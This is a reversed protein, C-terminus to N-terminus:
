NLSLAHRGVASGGCWLVCMRNESAIKCCLHDCLICFTTRKEADKLYCRM